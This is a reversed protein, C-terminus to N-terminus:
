DSLRCHDPYREAINEVVGLAASLFSRMTRRQSSTLEDPHMEVHWNPVDPDQRFTLGEPPLDSAGESLLEFITSVSACVLNEGAPEDGSHGTGRLGVIAGDDNRIVTVETM